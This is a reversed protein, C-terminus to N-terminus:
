ALAMSVVDGSPTRYDGSLKVPTATTPVEFAVFGTRSDNSQLKVEGDFGPGAKTGLFSSRYEQGDTDVIQLSSEPFEDLTATGTNHYTVQVAILRMGDDVTGFTPEANDTVQNVTLEFAADDTTLLQAATGVPTVPASAQPLPGPDQRPATLDWEAFDSGLDWQFRQAASAQPIEFTLWGSRVDNSPVAFSSFSPGVAADIFGRSFQQGASDILKSSVGAFTDFPDGSLNSIVMRVAVFKNGPDPDSFEPAPANDVMDVVLLQVNQGDVTTKVAAGIPVAGQPRPLTTTAGGPGLTTEVDTDSTPTSTRPNTLPPLTFPVDTDGASDQTTAATTEDTTDSVTTTTRRPRTTGSETDTVESHTDSTEDDSGSTAVVIGGVVIAVVVVVAAGIALPGKWWPRKGPGPQVPVMGPPGGVGGGFGGGTQTPPAFSPAGGTPPQGIGPPGFGGPGQTTTPQTPPQFGPPPMSPPDSM